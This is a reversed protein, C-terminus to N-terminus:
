LFKALYSTATLSVHRELPPCLEFAKPEVSFNWLRFILWDPADPNGAAERWCTEAVSKENRTIHFPTYETGNTTKVEILRKRGCASFSSIDYGAGDGDEKSVWRVKRALDARGADTLAAREYALARREGAEGLKRNRFDRGAFDFKRAASQLKGIDVPPPRNRMTPPPGVTLPGTEAHEVPDGQLAEIEIGNVSIWRAVADILASQYNTAPKYGKIFALGFVSNLVASINQNKYEISGKSRDILSRLKRNFDAKNIERGNIEETLMTFYCEVIQDNESDTWNGTAM